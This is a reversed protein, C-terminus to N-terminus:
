GSPANVTWTVQIQDNALLSVDPFSSAAFLNGDSGDVPSWHLGTCNVTASASATWTYQVQYATNNVVTATGEARDLGGTTIENPLKTWSVDPTPDASLAIYITANMNTINNFGLINRIYRSGITVVINHTEYEYILVGNRWVRVVVAGNIDPKTEITMPQEAFYGSILIFSLTIMIGLCVGLAFKRDVIASM